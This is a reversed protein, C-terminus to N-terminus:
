SEARHVQSGGLVCRDGGRLCFQLAFTRKIQHHLPERFGCRFSMRRTSPLVRGKHPCSPPPRQRPPYDWRSVRSPALPPWPHAAEVQHNPIRLSVSTLRHPAWHRGSKELSELVTRSFSPALWWTLSHGPAPPHSCTLGVNGWVLLAPSPVTGWGGEGGSPRVMPLHPSSPRGM